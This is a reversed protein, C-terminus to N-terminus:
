LAGPRRGCRHQGGPDRPDPVGAKSLASTLKIATQGGFAVVVGVPQETHIVGLADEPTLPEFYLRDATDFDTSVTEPNNNVIVVEYGAEKLAWVCHVSAYDFEIGQGIRIPGSGFVVVTPKQSGHEQIFEAAENEEDYAAYFYPTEAAFEGACTDVMKYSPYRHEPLPDGSLSAIVKDPYGSQKAELYLTKTLPEEALRHELDVLRLLKNLFWNDIKTVAHIEEPSIGRQLAEYVVFLRRDDCVGIRRRIEEEPLEKLEPTNLSLHSIEAGRVAKMLAEEFTRGIAM